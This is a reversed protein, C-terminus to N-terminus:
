VWEGELRLAFVAKVKNKLLGAKMLGLFMSQKEVTFPLMLIHCRLVTGATGKMAFDTTHCKKFHM